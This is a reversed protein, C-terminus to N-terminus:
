KAVRQVPFQLPRTRFRISSAILPAAVLGMGWSRAHSAVLPGWVFVVVGCACCLLIFAATASFERVDRRSLAAMFASCAGVSAGFLAFICAARYEEHIWDLWFVVFSLSAWVLWTGIQSQLMIEVFLTKIGGQKPWRPTLCLLSEEAGRAKWSAQAIQLRAFLNVGSFATLAVYAGDQLQRRGTANLIAILLWGVAVSKGIGTWRPRLDFGLGLSLARSSLGADGVGAVASTVVRDLSEEYRALREADVALAEGRTAVTREHRADALPGSAQTRAAVRVALRLWWILIPISAVILAGRIVPSTFDAAFHYSDAVHELIVLL